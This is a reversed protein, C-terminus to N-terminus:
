LINDLPSQVKQVGQRLVHTYIMTTKIDKHGMLEQITRIDYGAELLHTAFSHRLTHCTVRKNLQIINVARRVAKQLTSPSCHWRKMPQSKSSQRTMSSPFLYQWQFSTSANKYKKDIADPLNVHGAGSNLDDIHLRKRWLLHQELPKILRNPIMVVRAQQGKTNRVTLTRLNLDVDQVRLTVCENVRLGSGYLLGSMLKSQGFLQGFLMQVESKSLVTPINKFRRITRLYNLEGLEISLVQKYLFVIANLAQSQTSGSINKETVLYSLYQGIHDKTLNKPHQKNHFLIYQRCWYIYAIETKPSYKRRQIETRMQQLLKPKM